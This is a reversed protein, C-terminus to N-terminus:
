QSGRSNLNAGAGSGSREREARIGQPRAKSVTVLTPVQTVDLRVAAGPDDDLELEAARTPPPSSFSPLPTSPAPNADGRSPRTHDTSLDTNLLRLNSGVATKGVPATEVGRAGRPDAGPEDASAGPVVTVKPIKM